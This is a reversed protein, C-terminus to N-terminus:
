SPAASASGNTTATTESSASASIPPHTPRGGTSNTPWLKSRRSWNERARRRWDRSARLAAVVPPSRKGAPRAILKRPWDRLFAEAEPASALLERLARVLPRLPEEGALNRRFVSRPPLDSALQPKGM